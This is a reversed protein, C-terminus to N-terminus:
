LHVASSDLIDSSYAHESNQAPRGERQVGREFDTLVGV